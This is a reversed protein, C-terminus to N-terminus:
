WGNRLMMSSDAYEERKGEMLCFECVEGREFVEEEHCDTCLIKCKCHDKLCDGCDPCRGQESECVHCEVM